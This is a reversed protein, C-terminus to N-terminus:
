KHVRIIVDGLEVVPVGFPVIVRRVQYEQTYNLQVRAEMWINGQSLSKVWVPRRSKSTKIYVIITGMTVGLMHYKFTMCQPGKIIPSILEATDGYKAGLAEIYLYSGSGLCILCDTENVLYPIEKGFLSNAM